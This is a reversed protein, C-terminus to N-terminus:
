TSLSIAAAPMCLTRAPLCGLLWGLACAQCAGWGRFGNLLLCCSAQHPWRTTCMHTTNHQLCVAPLTPCLARGPCRGHRQAGRVVVVHASGRGALTAPGTITAHCQWRAYCPRGSQCCGGRKDCACPEYCQLALLAAAQSPQQGHGNVMMVSLMALTPPQCVHPAHHPSCPMLPPTLQHSTITTHSHPGTHPQCSPPKSFAPWRRCSGTCGAKSGLHCCAGAAAHLYSPGLAKEHNIASRVACHQAHTSCAVAQRAPAVQGTTGRTLGAPPMLCPQLLTAAQGHWHPQLGPSSHVVPVCDM